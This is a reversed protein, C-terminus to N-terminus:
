LVSQIIPSMTEQAQEKVIVAVISSLRCANGMGSIQYSSYLFTIKRHKGSRLVHIWHPCLSNILHLFTDAIFTANKLSLSSSASIIRTWDPASWLFVWGSDFVEPNYVFLIHPRMLTNKHIAHSTYNRIGPKTDKYLHTDWPLWMVMESLCTFM